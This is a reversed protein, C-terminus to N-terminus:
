KQKIKKKNKTDKKEKKNELKKLNEYENKVGRIVDNMQCFKSDFIPDQLVKVFEWHDPHNVDLIDNEKFNRNMESAEGWDRFELLQGCIELENIIKIFDPLERFNLPTIVYALSLEKFIGKKFLSNLFKINDMTKEYKAGRVFKEYTEKTAAHMSVTVGMIRDIIGLEKLNKENCLTGNTILKFRLKPYKEAAIKILKKCFNSAFLEGEGNMQLLTANKLLPIFTTDIMEDLKAAKTKTMTRRKDRCIVCHCNCTDDLSINVTKPYKAILSAKSLPMDHNADIGMCRDFLCHTYKGDIIDQRFDQAIKGNWIEDFTQEFINGWYYDNTFAPCCCCIDGRLNIEIYSFPYKCISKKM